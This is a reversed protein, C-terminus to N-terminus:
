SIIAEFSLKHKTFYYVNCSLPLESSIFFINSSLIIM